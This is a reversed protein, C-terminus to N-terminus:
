KEYNFILHDDLRHKLCVFGKLTCLFELCVDEIVTLIDFVFCSMDISYTKSLLVNEINTNM